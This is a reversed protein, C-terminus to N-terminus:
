ITFKQNVQLYEFILLMLDEKNSSSNFIINYKNCVNKLEDTNKEKLDELLDVFKGILESVLEDISLKFVKSNNKENLESISLLELSNGLDLIIQSIKHEFELM